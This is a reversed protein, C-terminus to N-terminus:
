VLVSLLELCAFTLANLDGPPLWEQQSGRSSHSTYRPQHITRAAINAQERGGRRLTVGPRNSVM